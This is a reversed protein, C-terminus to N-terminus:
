ARSKRDKGFGLGKEHLIFNTPRTWHREKCNRMPYRPMGANCSVEFTPLRREPFRNRMVLCYFKRVDSSVTLRRHLSLRDEKQVQLISSEPIRKSVITPVILELLM